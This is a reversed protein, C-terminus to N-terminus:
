RVALSSASKVARLLQQTSTQLKYHISAVGAQRWAEQFQKDLVARNASYVVVPINQWDAYSRLEYLFEIGNHLGLQPELVIVDAGAQDLKSVAAQATRVPVLKYNAQKFAQCLSASLLRDPEVLLLKM